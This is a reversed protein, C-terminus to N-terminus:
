KDNARREAFWLKEDYGLLNIQTPYVYFSQLKIVSEWNQATVSKPSKHHNVIPM